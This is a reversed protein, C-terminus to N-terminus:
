GAEGRWQRAHVAQMRCRMRRHNPYAVLGHLTPSEDEIGVARGAQVVSRCPVSGGLPMPSRGLFEVRGTALHYVGGQIELEGSEVM